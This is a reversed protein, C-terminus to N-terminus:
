TSVVEAWVIHLLSIVAERNKEGPILFEMTTRTIVVQDPDQIDFTRSDTLHLRVFPCPVREFLIRLDELRVDLEEELSSLRLPRFRSPASLRM